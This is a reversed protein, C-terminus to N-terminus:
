KYKLKGELINSTHNLWRTLHLENYWEQNIVSSDPSNLLPSDAFENTNLSNNSNYDSTSPPSLNQANTSTNLSQSSNPTNISRNNDFLMSQTVLNYLKTISDRMVHINEINMFEIVLSYTIFHKNGTNNYMQTDEYGGGTAVNAIANKRPRADFIHLTTTTASPSIRVFSNDPANNVTVVYADAANPNM